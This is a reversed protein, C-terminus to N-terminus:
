VKFMKIGTQHKGGEFYMQAQAMRQAVRELDDTASAHAAQTDNLSLIMAASAAMPSRVPSRSAVSQARCARCLKIKLSPDLGSNGCVHKLPSHLWSTPSQM